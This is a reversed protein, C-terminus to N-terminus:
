NSNQFILVNSKKPEASLTLCALLAASQNVVVDTELREM